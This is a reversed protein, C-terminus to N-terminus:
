GNAKNKKASKSIYEINATFYGRFLPCNQVILTFSYGKEIKSPLPYKM